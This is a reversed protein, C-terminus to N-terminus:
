TMTEYGCVFLCIWDHSIQHASRIQNHQMAQRRPAPPLSWRRFFLDIRVTYVSFRQYMYPEYISSFQLRPQLEDASCLVSGDLLSSVAGM